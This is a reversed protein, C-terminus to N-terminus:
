DGDGAVCLATDGDNVLVMVEKTAIRQKPRIGLAMQSSTSQMTPLIPSLLDLGHLLKLPVRPAMNQRAM